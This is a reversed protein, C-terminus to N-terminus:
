LSLEADAQCTVVASDLVVTTGVRRIEVLATGSLNTIGVTSRTATNAISRNASLAQWVGFTGGTFSGAQVTFQVEFDAASGFRLWEGSFPTTGGPTNVTQAVGTNTLEYSAVATVTGPAIAFANAASTRDTINIPNAGAGLLAQLMM